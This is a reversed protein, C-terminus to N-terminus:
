ERTETKPAWDRIIRSYEESPRIKLFRKMEDLAEIFQGARWHVHFCVLSARESHPSLDVAQRGHQIAEDCRGVQLLYWALYAHVSTAAPFEAVLDTLLQVALLPEDRGAFEIAQNIGAIVRPHDNGTVQTM